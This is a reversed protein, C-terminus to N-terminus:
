FNSYLKGGFGDCYRFIDLCMFYLKIPGSTPNPTFALQAVDVRRFNLMYNKYNNVDLGNVLPILNKEENLHIHFKKNLQLVINEIKKEPIFFYAPSNLRM